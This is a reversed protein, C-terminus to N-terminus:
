SADTTGCDDIFVQKTTTFHNRRSAYSDTNLNIVATIANVHSDEDGQNALAVLGNHVWYAMASIMAIRVDSSVAVPDAVIDIGSEPYLSQIIQNVDNYNSRGTLQIFGRGRYNWGDGSAVNGNGIRNAYARNAIAEQNASQGPARGYLRAEAPNRKFYSFKELLRAVSYNMNEATDEVDVNNGVEQKVQAFFHAKNLCTNMSFKEFAENFANKMATLDSDSTATFITSLQELTIEASCCDTLKFFKYDPKLFEEQFTRQGSVTVDLYLEAYNKIIELGDDQPQGNEAQINAEQQGLNDPRQRPRISTEVAGGEEQQPLTLAEKWDEFTDDDGPHFKIKVAATGNNEFVATLERTTSPNTDEENQYIQVQLSDNAETLKPEKEKILITAETGEPFFGYVVIYADKGIVGSNIREFQNREELKRTQIDITSQAAYTGNPMAQLVDEVTLYQNNQELSEQSNNIIIGAIRNRNEDTITNPNNFSYTYTGGLEDTEVTEIKKEAFYADILTEEVENTAITNQEANNLFKESGWRNLIRDNRQRLLEEISGPNTTEESM